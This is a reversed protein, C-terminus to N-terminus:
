GVDEETQFLYDLSKGPFVEKKIKLMESRKFETNGSAKNKLSDYKIGTITSLEKLCLGKRALEANLNPFM